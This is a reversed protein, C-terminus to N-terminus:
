GKRNDILRSTVIRVKLRDSKEKESLSELPTRWHNFMSPFIKSRLMTNRQQVDVKRRYEEKFTNLVNRDEISYQPTTRAM